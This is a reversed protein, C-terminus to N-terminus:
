VRYFQPHVSILDFLPSFLVHTSFVSSLCHCRCVLLALMPLAVCSPRLPIIRQESFPFRWTLPGSTFISSFHLDCCFFCSLAYRTLSLCSLLDRCVAAAFLSFYFPTLISSQWMCKTKSVLVHSQMLSVIVFIYKLFLFFFSVSSFASM